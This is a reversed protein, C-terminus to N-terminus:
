SGARRWVSWLGSEFVRTVAGPPTDGRFPTYRGANGPAPQKVLFYDWYRGYSQLSFYQELSWPTAPIPKPSAWLEHPVSTMAPTAAGGREVIYWDVMHAMPFHSYHREGGFAPWLAHVRKGEPIAQLAEEFGALEVGSWWRHFDTAIYLGYFTAAAWVPGLAWAPRAWRSGRTRVLLGLTLLFPVLLRVNVAWWGFPRDISMPLVLYGAGLALATLPIRAAWLRDRAPPAEGAERPARREPWSTSPWSPRLGFVLAALLAAAFVVAVVEDVPSVYANLFWEHVNELYTAAPQRQAWLHQVFAALGPGKGGVFTPGLWPGLYALAPVGV